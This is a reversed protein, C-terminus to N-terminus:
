IPFTEGLRASLMCGSLSNHSGTPRTYLAKVVILSARVLLGTRARNSGLRSVMMEASADEKPRPATIICLCGVPSRLGTAYM